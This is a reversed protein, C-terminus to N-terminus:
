AAQRCRAPHHPAPRHDRRGPRAEGGALDGADVARGERDGGAAARRDLVLRKSSPAPSSASRASRGRRRHCRGPRRCPRRSSPSRWRSGAPRDRAAEPEPPARRRPACRASRRVAGRGRRGGGASAARGSRLSVGTALSRRGKALGPEHHGDDGDDREATPEQDTVVVACIADGGRAGGLGDCRGGAGHALRDGRLAGDRRGLGTVQAERGGARHGRDVDDGALLDLGARDEGHEVRGLQLRRDALRRGAHGRGLRREAVVLVGVGGVGLQGGVGRVEGGGLVPQRRGVLGGAARLEHGPEVARDGGDVQGDALHQAAAARAGRGGGARRATRPPRGAREPRAPPLPLM